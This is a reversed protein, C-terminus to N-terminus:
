VNIGKENLRKKTRILDKMLRLEESDGKDEECELATDVVDKIGNLATEATEKLGKLDANEEGLIKIEEELEKVKNELQKKNM